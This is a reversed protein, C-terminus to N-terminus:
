IGKDNFQNLMFIAKQNSPELDQAKKYYKRASIFDKQLTAIDGLGLFATPRHPLVYAVYDYDIKAPKLNRNELNISARTLRARMNTSDYDLIRNMASLKTSNSLKCSTYVQAYRQRVFDDEFFLDMAQDIENRASSCDKNKVFSRTAKYTLKSSAFYRSYLDYSHYVLISSIIFIGSGLLIKIKKNKFTYKKNESSVLIVILGTLFWFLVASSPLRMPFDVFSHTISSILALLLGLLLYNPSGKNNIDPTSLLTFSKFVIYSYIIIIFLGGVLGLELVTQFPDSHLQKVSHDEMLSKVINPNSAHPVFGKRFAGYGVGLLPNNELMSLANKYWSFRINISGQTLGTNWSSSSALTNNDIIKTNIISYFLTPVILGLFIYQIIKKKQLINERLYQNKFLLVVFFLISVIYGLLSGKTKAVLIFTLILTFAISSIYKSYSKTTLMSVLTLPIILDFYNCAHNKNNFTSAVITSMKLNLPNINFAQLIGIFAAISASIYVALLITHIHKKDIIQSAVFAFIFYYTLQTLEITSNKIDESWLISLMSWAYFIFFAIHLPSILLTVKNTVIKYSFHLLLICATVAILIHRPISATEFVQSTFVLPLLFFFVAFIATNLSSLNNVFGFSSRNNQNNM